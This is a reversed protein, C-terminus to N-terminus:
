LPVFNSCFTNRDKIYRSIIVQFCIQATSTCNCMYSCYFTALVADYFLIRSTDAILVFACVLSRFLNGYAILCSLIFYTLIAFHKTLTSNFTISHFMVEVNSVAYSFSGRSVRKERSNVMWTMRVKSVIYVSCMLCQSFGVFRIFEAM